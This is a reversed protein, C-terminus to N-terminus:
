REVHVPRREAVSRKLAQEIRIAAIGDDITVDPRRGERVCEVFHRVEGAFGHLHRPDAADGPLQDNPEWREPGEHGDLYATVTRWSDVFVASRHGTLVVRENLRELCNIQLTGVAGGEFGLVCAWAEEQPPEKGEALTWGDRWASGTVPIDLESPRWEPTDGDARTARAAFVWEVEGALFRALDLHHCGFGNLFDYVARPPYVGFTFRAEYASPPGFEPRSAIARARRYPESFRKMFGVMLNRGAQVAAEKMALCDELNEAPPKEIFVHKGAQLCDIAVAPQLRPHMAVFVCDVDSRELLERHDAYVQRIGFDRACRRARTEDVDCCAVLEGIEGGEALEGIAAGTEPPNLVALRFSPYLNQTAHSGCGIFGVRVLPAV